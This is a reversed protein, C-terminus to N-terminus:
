TSHGRKLGPPMAKPVFTRKSPSFSPTKRKAFPKNIPGSHAKASRKKKCTKKVFHCQPDASCSKSTKRDGCKKKKGTSKSSKRKDALIKKGLAGSRLVLRGSAPNRVRAPKKESKKAPM